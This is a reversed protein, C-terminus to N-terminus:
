FIDYFSDTGSAAAAAAAAIRPAARAMADGPHAAGRDRLVRVGGDSSVELAECRGAAVYSSMGTDCRWVLGECAPNISRQPTHGVVLRKVQLRKLTRRLSDCQVAPVEADSPSSLSRGWVPSDEGRYMHSLIFPMTASKRGDDPCAEGLLWRRTAANISELQEVTVDAPLHAHVYCSDGVIAAVYCDALEAALAGGPRFAELRDPGFAEHASAHIFPGAHGCVNMIEHNGLLCVVRGGQTPAEVMLRRLMSWCRAEDPGRDLVDGLQVLVSDKGVWEDSDDILGATRLTRSLAAFDGHIDGIAVVRAPAPIVLSDGGTCALLLLLTPTRSEGSPAARATPM